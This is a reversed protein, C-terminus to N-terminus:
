LSLSANLSPIGGLRRLGYIGKVSTQPSEAVVLACESFFTAQTAGAGPSYVSRSNRRQIRLARSTSVRGSRASERQLVVRCKNPPADARSAIRLLSFRYAWGTSEQQKVLSGLFHVSM